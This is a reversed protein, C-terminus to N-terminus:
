STNGTGAFYSVSEIRWKPSPKNSNYCWYLTSFPISSVKAYHELTDYVDEMGSIKIIFTRRKKNRKKHTDKKHAAQRKAACSKSCYLQERRSVYVEFIKGCCECTKTIWPNGDETIKSGLSKYPFKKGRRFHNGTDGGDGGKAINYEPSRMAIYYIERENLEILSYCEEILELKFKSKGNKRISQKIIKGSGFYNSDFPGKKKGIYTKHNITNTVQYIYGFM